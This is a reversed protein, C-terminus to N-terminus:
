ELGQAPPVADDARSAPPGAPTPEPPAVPAAQVAATDQKAVATGTTTQGTAPREITQVPERALAPPPAAIVAPAPRPLPTATSRHVVHPISRPPRPPGGGIYAPARRASDYIAEPEEDIAGIQDAPVFRVIRGSRGDVILRGDDGNPDVAGFTYYAGRPRPYGLPAFGQDRVIAAIEDPPLLAAVYAGPAYRRALPPEVVVDPGGFDSVKIVAPPAAQPSPLMGAHAGTAVAALGAASIMWGVIKMM